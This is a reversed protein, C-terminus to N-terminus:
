GSNQLQTKVKNSHLFFSQVLTFTEKNWNTPESECGFFLTLLTFQSHGLSTYIIIFAWDDRETLIGLGFGWWTGIHIQKGSEHRISLWTITVHLTKMWDCTLLFHFIVGKSQMMWLGRQELQTALYTVYRSWYKSVISINTAIVTLPPQTRAKESANVFLFRSCSCITQFFFFLCSCASLIGWKQQAELKNVGRSRM